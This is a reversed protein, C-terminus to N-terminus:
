VNKKGKKEEILNWFTDFTHKDKCIRNIFENFTIHDPHEFEGKENLLNASWLASEVVTKPMQVERDLQRKIQGLTRDLDHFGISPDVAGKSVNALLAMLDSLRVDVTDGSPRTMQVKSKV